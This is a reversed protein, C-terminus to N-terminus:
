EGLALDSLQQLFVQSHRRFHEIAHPYDTRDRDSLSNAPAKSTSSIAIAGERRIMQVGGCASKKALERLAQGWASLRELLEPEFVGPRQQTRAMVVGQDHRLAWLRRLDTPSLPASDEQVLVTAGRASQLGAHAAADLGRPRDYRILRLQPYQRALEGAVDATHDISGDDVVVIEFRSTLDPLLDLLRGVRQALTGEVNRVPLVLSLSDNVV